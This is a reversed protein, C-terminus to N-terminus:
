TNTGEMTDLHGTKVRHEITKLGQSWEAKTKKEGDSAERVNIYSFGQM